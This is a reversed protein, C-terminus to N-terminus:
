ISNKLKRLINILRKPLIKLKLFQLLLEKNYIIDGYKLYYSLSKKAESYLKNEYFYPIYDNCFIASIKKTNIINNDIDWNQSIYYYDRIDKKLENLIFEPTGIQQNLHYFLMTREQLMEKSKAVSKCQKHLRFQAFLKDSFEIHNLGYKCLYKLWLELDMAYHLNNNIGGFERVINTKFFTAQQNMYPKAITTEANKQIGMRYLQLTKNSINDFIRSYGCLINTSKHKAFFEGIYNLSSSDLLDDSNLWNFIEGTAKAIGKNIAYSQGNDKESIWYSLYKEYKKIIEVSNDSSGGDIIIYELNPYNQSLVSNITAELFEGQNFSPTIISIKPLYSNDM